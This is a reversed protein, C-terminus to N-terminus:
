IRASRRLGLTARQRELEKREAQEREATIPELMSWVLTGKLYIDARMAKGGLAKLGDGTLWAIAHEIEGFEKYTAEAAVRQLRAIYIPPLRRM